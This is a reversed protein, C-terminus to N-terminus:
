TRQPIEWLSTLQPCRLGWSHPCSSEWPLAPIVPLFPMLCLYPRKTRAWSYNGPLDRSRFDLHKFQTQSKWIQNAAFGNEWLYDCTPGWHYFSLQKGQPPSPHSPPLALGMQSDCPECGLLAAITVALSFPVLLTAWGELSSRTPCPWNRDDSDTRTLKQQTVFLKLMKTASLLVCKNKEWM